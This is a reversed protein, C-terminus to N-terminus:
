LCGLESLLLQRGWSCNRSGGNMETHCLMNPQPKVHFLGSLESNLLEPVFGYSKKVVCLLM